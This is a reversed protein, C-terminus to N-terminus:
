VGVDADPGEGQRPHPDAPDRRLRLDPRLRGDPHRRWGRVDRPGQRLRDPRARCPSFDDPAISVVPPAAGPGEATGVMVFVTSAAVFATGSTGSGFGSFVARNM